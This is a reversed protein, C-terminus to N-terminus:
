PAEGRLGRRLERCVALYPDIFRARGGTRKYFPERDHIVRLPKPYPLPMWSGLADMQEFFREDLAMRPVFRAYKEGLTNPQFVAALAPDNAALRELMRAAWLEDFTATGDFYSNFYTKSAGAAYPDGPPYPIFGVDMPGPALPAEATDEVLAYAPNPYSFRLDVDRVSGGLAALLLPIRVDTDPGISLGHTQLRASTARGFASQVRRRSEVDAGWGCDMVTLAVFREHAVFVPDRSLRAMWARALLRNYLVGLRLNPRHFFARSPDGTREGRDPRFPFRPHLRLDLWDALRQRDEFTAPTTEPVNRPHARAYAAIASASRLPWGGRLEDELRPDFLGGFRGRECSGAAVCGRFESWAAGELEGSGSGELVDNDSGYFGPWDPYMPWIPRADPGHCHACDDTDTHPQYPAVPDRLPLDLAWLEFAEQSADYGMLDLRGGGAQGEAAGNFSITFGSSEDWMLTRPSNPTAEQGTAVIPPELFAELEEYAHGREGPRPLGHKATYNKRFAAPTRALVSALSPSGEAAMAHALCSFELLDVRSDAM